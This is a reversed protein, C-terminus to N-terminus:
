YRRGPRGCEAGPRRRTRGARVRCRQPPVLMRRLTVARAGRVRQLLEGRLVDLLGAEVSERIALNGGHDLSPQACIAGAASPAGHKVHFAAHVTVALGQPFRHILRNHTAPCEQKRALPPCQRGRPSEDTHGHKVHFGEMGETSRRRGGLTALRRTGGGTSLEPYFRHFDTCLWPQITSPGGSVTSAATRLRCRIAECPRGLTGQRGTRSLFLMDLRLVSIMENSSMAAARARLRATYPRRGCGIAECQPAFSWTM